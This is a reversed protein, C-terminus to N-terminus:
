VEEGFTSAITREPEFRDRFIDVLPKPKDDLNTMKYQILSYLKIMKNFSLEACLVSYLQEADMESIVYSKKNGM